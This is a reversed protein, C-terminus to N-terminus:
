SACAVTKVPVGTLIPRATDSVPYAPDSYEPLLKLKLTLYKLTDARAVARESLSDALKEFKTATSEAAFADRLSERAMDFYTRSSYESAAGESSYKRSLDLANSGRFRQHYISSRAQLVSIDDALSRNFVSVLCAYKSTPVIGRLSKQIDEKEKIYGDIREFLNGWTETSHTKEAGAIEATLAQTRQILPALSTRNAENAKSEGCATAVLGIFLLSFGTRRQWPRTQIGTASMLCGVRPVAFCRYICGIAFHRNRIVGM